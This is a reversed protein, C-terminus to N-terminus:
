KKLKSIVIYNIYVGDQNITENIETKFGSTINNILRSNKVKSLEKDSSSNRVFDVMQNQDNCTMFDQAILNALKLKAIILNKQEALKKDASKEKNKIKYFFTQNYSFTKFWKPDSTEDVASTKLICTNLISNSKVTTCASLILCIALTFFIKM